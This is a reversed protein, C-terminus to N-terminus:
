FIVLEIHARRDMGPHYIVMDDSGNGNIDHVTAVGFAPVDFSVWPKSSIFKDESGTHVNMSDRGAGFAIDSRGDGNFDGLAYASQERGEPADISVDARFDPDDGFGGDRFLYIELDIGLKKFVFFNIFFRVGWPINIFVLDLKEDGDVDRLIPAAFSGKSEFRATPEEPYEMPGSALYVQTVVQLNITGQTQTVVLDPMGNKDIDHMHASAEWKEGLTQPVPFRKHEAWHDGYAFDAYEDSLFALAQHEQGELDFAQFAPLRNDVRVGGGASIHSEVDCNVTCVAGDKGRVGYGSPMPVLWEDVGDKDLDMAIEAIFRPERIGGPFLSFFAQRGREVFGGNEFAYVTVGEAGAVVTEAPPAGDMEAFFACGNGPGVGFTASPATPFAGDDGALFVVLVKDLEASTEDCCFAVIDDQEDGDIDRVVTDWVNVGADLSVVQPATASLALLLSAAFPTMQM